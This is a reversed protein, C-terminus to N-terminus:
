GPDIERVVLLHREPGGGDRTAHYELERPTGDGRRFRLTSHLEGLRRLEAWLGEIDDPASTDEPNAFAQVPRGVIAERPAEVIDAFAQSLEVFRRDDDLIAWAHGPELWWTGGAALRGYRYAYWIDPGHGPDALPDRERVVASPYRERLVRQLELPDPHVPKAAHRARPATPLAGLALEAHRRFALDEPPFVRLRLSRPDSM